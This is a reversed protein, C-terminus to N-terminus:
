FIEDLDIKTKKTKSRRIRRLYFVKNRTVVKIIQDFHVSKRRYENEFLQRRSSSKLCSKISNTNSNSSYNSALPYTSAQKQLFLASDDPHSKLTFEMAHKEISSNITNLPQEIEQSVQDLEHSLDTKNVDIICGM